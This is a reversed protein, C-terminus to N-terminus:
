KQEPASNSAKGALTHKLVFGMLRRIRVCGVLKRNEKKEVIPLSKLRYERMAEVAVACSDDAALAVPNKSMFESVPTTAAASADRARFLDTMM